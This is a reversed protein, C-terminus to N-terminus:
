DAAPEGADSGSADQADEDAGLGSSQWVLGVSAGLFAALVLAVAMALVNLSAGRRPQGGGLGGLDLSMAAGDEKEARAMWRARRRAPGGVSCEM